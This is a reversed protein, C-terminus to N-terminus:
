PSAPLHEAKRILEALERVDRDLPLVQNVQEAVRLVDALNGDQAHESQRLIEAFRAACAALYFRPASAVTRRRVISSRLRSSIEEIQGTDAHRYRVFVTGLDEQRDASPTGILELEYLATSCQGSGVEGADITDDRFRKDEIDRNEYGILRYRRVRNPNFDVQIRADKAVTQLTAALQEVFVRQAEGASDLFVYSGDGRNALTELFADNYSGYGVGVCTITIGQKREAAVAKLVAEAETQGVNAVGDSCLIVHNIQKPAFARRAAAYGLKLGALLNTSGAPQIADIARRIKERERASTAEMHLRAENACTILSVRDAASLKNVLLGLAKQVLGLRDPQGMSASADVVLILHAAKRQDRGITRAKVGIKLLTLNKEKRAFPAQAAEAHVAFTPNARQPYQYNFYNVFEEMRVAGAPPLFGGRIYRRCLTYSATDVDLAFTSLSDRDAMVWPNVPVLKFRSAAPLDSGDEETRVITIDNVDLLVQPRPRDIAQVLKKVKERMDKRGFVIIQGKKRTPEILVKPSSQTESSDRFGDGVLDKVQRPDAYRLNIIEFETEVPKGEPQSIPDGSELRVPLRGSVSKGDTVSQVPKSPANLIANVPALKKGVLNINGNYSESEVVLADGNEVKELHLKVEDTSPLYEATSETPSADPIMNFKHPLLKMTEASLERAKKLDADRRGLKMLDLSPYAPISSESETREAKDELVSKIGELSKATRQAQEEPLASKGGKRDYLTGLVPVDGLIPVRGNIELKVPETAEPSHVGGDRGRGEGHSVGLEGVVILVPRGGYETSATDHKEAAKDLSSVVEEKFVEGRLGHQTTGSIAFPLQAREHDRKGGEDGQDVEWNWGGTYGYGMDLTERGRFSDFLADSDIDMTVIREAGGQRQLTSDPRDSPGSAGGVPATLSASGPGTVVISGGPMAAPPGPDGDNFTMNHGDTVIPRALVWNSITTGSDTSGDLGTVPVTGTYPSYTGGGAGIGGYGGGAYGGMGGAKGNYFAYINDEDIEGRDGGGVVSSVDSGLADSFFVNNGLRVTSGPKGTLPLDGSSKIGKGWNASTPMGGMGGYGGMAVGGGYGGMMGGGSSIGMGSSPESGSANALYDDHSVSGGWSRSALTDGGSVSLQGGVIRDVEGMTYLNDGGSVLTNTVPPLLSYKQTQGTERVSPSSNTIETQMSYQQSEDVVDYAYKSKSGIGGSSPQIGELSKEASFSYFDSTDSELGSLAGPVSSLSRVGSLIVLAPLLVAALVAAAVALRRMTFITPGTSRRGALRALTKLRRKGLVPDPGHQLTDSAVKAAMRMDALCERLEDDTQLYTLLETKSAEDLDDFILAALLKEAKERNM